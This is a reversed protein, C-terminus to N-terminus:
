TKKDHTKKGTTIPIRAKGYPWNEAVATNCPITTVPLLTFNCQTVGSSGCRREYIFPTKM